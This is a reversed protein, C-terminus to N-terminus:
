RGLIEVLYVKALCMKSPAGESSASQFTAAHATLAPSTKVSAEITAFYAVCTENKAVTM